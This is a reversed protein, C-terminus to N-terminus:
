DDVEETQSFAGGSGDSDQESTDDGTTSKERDWKSEKNKGTTEDTRGGPKDADLKKEGDKVDVQATKKQTETKPNIKDEQSPADPFGEFDQDIHKDHSERVESRQDIPDTQKPQDM